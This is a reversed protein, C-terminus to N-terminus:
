KLLIGPLLLIIQSKIVNSSLDNAIICSELLARNPKNLVGKESYADLSGVISKIQNNIQENTLEKIKNQTINFSSFQYFDSIDENNIIM